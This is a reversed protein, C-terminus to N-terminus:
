KGLKKKQKLKQKNFYAKGENLTEERFKTRKAGNKEAVCGNYLITFLKNRKKPNDMQKGMGKFEVRLNKKTSENEYHTVTGAKKEADKIASIKRKKAPPEDGDVDPVPADPADPAPADPAPVDERKRKLANYGATLTNRAAMYMPTVIGSAAAFHALSFLGVPTGTMTLAGVWAAGSLSMGVVERNSLSIDTMDHTFDKM